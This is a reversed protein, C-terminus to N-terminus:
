ARHTGGSHAALWLGAQTSVYNSLFSYRDPGGFEGTPQATSAAGKLTVARQQPLARATSDGVRRALNPLATNNIYM